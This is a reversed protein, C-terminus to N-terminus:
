LIISDCIKYLKKKKEPHNFDILDAFKVVGRKSGVTATFLMKSKENKLWNYKNAKIGMKQLWFILQNVITESTSSFKVERGKVVLTGDSDFLGRICSAILLPNNTKAIKEPIKIKHAKYGNCLDFFTRLYWHIAKSAFYSVFYNGQPISIKTKVGFLEEFHKKYIELHKKNDFFASVGWNGKANISNGALYGDGLLLGILYALEPTIENPFKIIHTSYQCKLYIQKSDIKEVLEQKLNKDILQLLENLKSFPIPKRGLHWEKLRSYKVNMLESAKAPGGLSWVAKNIEDKINWICIEDALWDSKADFLSIRERGANM